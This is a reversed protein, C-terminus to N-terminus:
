VKTDNKGDHKEDIIHKISDLAEDISYANLIAEFVMMRNNIQTPDRGPNKEKVDSNMKLGEEAIEQLKSFDTNQKLANILDFLNPYLPAKLKVGPEVFDGHELISRLETYIEEPPIPSQMSTGSPFLKRYQKYLRSLRGNELVEIHKQFLPKGNLADLLAHAATIKQKKSYGLNFVNLYEPENTREAIYLQVQYILHHRIADFSQLEGEKKPTLIQACVETSELDNISNEQVATNSEKLWTGDQGDAAIFSNETGSFLFHDVPSDGMSTVHPFSRATSQIEDLKYPEYFKQIIGPGTFSLTSCFKVPLNLNHALPHQGMLHDVSHFYGQKTLWWAVSDMKSSEPVSLANIQQQADDISNYQPYVKIKDPDIISSANVGENYCRSFYDLLSKMPDTHPLAAIFCQNFGARREIFRAGVHAIVNIDGIPGDSNQTISNDTDVYLGGLQELIAIRLIDSCAAYNPSHGQHKGLEIIDMILADILANRQEHVPDRERDRWHRLKIAQQGLEDRTAEHELTTEDTWLILEYGSSQAMKSWNLINQKYAEPLVGGLWVFHITKPIPRVPIKKDQDAVADKLIKIYIEPLNREQAWNVISLNAPFLNAGKEILRLIIPEADSKYLAAILPTVGSSSVTNADIDENFLENITNIDLKDIAVFLEHNKLINNLKLTEPDNDLNVLIDSFEPYAQILWESIQVLMSESRDIPQTKFEELLQLNLPRRDEPSSSIANQVISRWQANLQFDDTFSSFIFYKYKKIIDIGEAKSLM